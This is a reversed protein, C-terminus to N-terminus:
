GGGQILGGPEAEQTSLNHVHLAVNLEIYRLPPFYHNNLVKWCKKLVPDTLIEPKSYCVEHPILLQLLQDYLFGLFILVIGSVYFYQLYTKLGFLDCLMIIHGWFILMDLGEKFQIKKSDVSVELILSQSEFIIPLRRTRNGLSHQQKEYSIVLRWPLFM